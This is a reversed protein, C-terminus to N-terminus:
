EADYTIVHTFVQLKRKLKRLEVVVDEIYASHVDKCILRLSFQGGEIPGRKVELKDIYVKDAFFSEIKLKLSDFIADSSTCVEVMFNKMGNVEGERDSDIMWLIGWKEPVFKQAEASLVNIMM